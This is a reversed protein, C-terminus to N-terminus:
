SSKLSNFVIIQCSYNFNNNKNKKGRDEQVATSDISAPAVVPAPSFGLHPVSGTVLTQTTPAVHYDSPADKM